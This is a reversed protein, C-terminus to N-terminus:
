KTMGFPTQPTLFRRPAIRKEQSRRLACTLISGLKASVLVSRIYRPDIQREPELDAFEEELINLCSKVFDASRARLTEELRKAMVEAVLKHFSDALQAPPGGPTMLAARMANLRQPEIPLIMLKGDLAQRVLATLLIQSLMVEHGAIQSRFSLSAIDLGLLM